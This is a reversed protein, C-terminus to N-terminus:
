YYSNIVGNVGVQSAVAHSGQSFGDGQSVLLVTPDLRLNVGSMVGVVTFVYAIQDSTFLLATQLCFGDTRCQNRTLGASFRLADIHLWMDSGATPNDRAIRAEIRDLDDRYNKTRVVRMM